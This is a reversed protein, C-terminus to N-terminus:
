RVVACDEEEVGNTLGGVDPFASVTGTAAINNSGRVLSSYDEKHPALSSWAM